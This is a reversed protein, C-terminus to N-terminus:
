LPSILSEVYVKQTMEGYINNQFKPIKFTHHISDYVVLSYNRMKLCEMLLQDDKSVYLAGIYGHFGCERMHPVSFLKIWSKENGYEKMIWIDSFRDGRDILLSLCGRLTGLTMSSTRYQADFAPLALKQFSEKELNLSVILFACCTSDYTLWNVYDNVFTGSRRRPILDPDPFGPIMRWYDTGLTHVNVEKKRSSTNIAIIKYNNTFGDYVLTYTIQDFRQDSFELPPLIKFKRISPNCLLALSNDIRFCLLGDCASTEMYHDGKNRIEKLPYRFEMPSASSFLSTIPSHCIVFEPSKHASSMIVHHRSHRSTSLRLHKKAFNSDGSILSNWSRCVCCFQILQKVPLRCLIGEVLDFPLHLSTLTSQPQKRQRLPSTLTSQPQKRPTLPSTLTSQPQKM